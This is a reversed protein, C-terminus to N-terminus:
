KAGSLERPIPQSNGSQDNGRLPISKSSPPQVSYTPDGQKLWEDSHRYNLKPQGLPSISTPELEESVIGLILDSMTDLTMNSPAGLLRNIVDPTKGIRRALIAQTLGNKSENLFKKLIFNFMRNRLRTQFYVRKPEPIPPGSHGATLESFFQTQSTTM